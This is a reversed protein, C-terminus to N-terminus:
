LHTSSVADQSSSEINIFLGSASSFADAYELQSKSLIQRVTREVRYGEAESQILIRGALNALQLIEKDQRDM